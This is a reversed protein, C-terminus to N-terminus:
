CDDSQQIRVVVVGKDVINKWPIDDRKFRIGYKTIWGETCGQTAIQRVRM